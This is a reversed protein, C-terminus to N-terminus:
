AVLSLAKELTVISPASPLHDSIYRKFAKAGKQAHFFNVLHKVMHFIPTGQKIEIAIYNLINDIIFERTQPTKTSNFILNDALHLLFPNHYAARGIMVEDLVTLHEQAQDLTKIGGNIGISLNPFQAKIDYVRQYNLPPITRNEKPNLGKLWGTRAHLCIHDVGSQVLRETFTVLHALSQDGDVGIRTKVTVPVSVKQKMAEVCRAVLDPQKMLCLGFQGQQVRDSPCGVNLNIECFGASQAIHACKALATPDSGGLQIALPYEYPTHMLFRKTNGHLLAGTTIMETYLLTNQTIQRMFYRFHRDTYGMMPAISLAHHKVTPANTSVNQGKMPPSFSDELTLM